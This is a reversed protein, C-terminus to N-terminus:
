FYFIYYYCKEKIFHSFPPFTYFISMKINRMQFHKSEKETEVKYDIKVTSWLMQSIILPLEEMNKDYKWSILVMAKSKFTSFMLGVTFNHSTVPLDRKGPVSADCPLWLILYFLILRSKRTWLNLARWTFRGDMIWPRLYRPSHGGCCMSNPLLWFAGKKESFLNNIKENTFAKEFGFNNGHLGRM